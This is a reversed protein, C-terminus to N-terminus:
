GNDVRVVEPGTPLPDGGRPEVTIVPTPYESPVVAAHLVVDTTGDEASRGDPPQGTVGATASSRGGRRRRTVPVENRKRALSARREEWAVSAAHATTM